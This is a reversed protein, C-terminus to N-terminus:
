SIAIPLFITLFRLDLLTPSKESTNGRGNCFWKKTSTCMVVAAPDHIGCYRHCTAHTVHGVCSNRINVTTWRIKQQPLFM